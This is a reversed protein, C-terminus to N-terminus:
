QEFSPTLKLAQHSPRSLHLIVRPFSNLSYIGPHIILSRARMSHLAAAAAGPQFFYPFSMNLHIAGM